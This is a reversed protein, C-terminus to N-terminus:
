ALVQKFWLLAAEGYTRTVEDVTRSHRIGNRLAALHDFHGALAEKTQFREEFRPWLQKNTITDQLERFISSSLSVQSRKTTNACSMAPNKRLAAEAKAKSKERVHSPLLGADGSLAVEVLRRLALEAAEIEADLERLRPPLDLREKILLDEIAEM